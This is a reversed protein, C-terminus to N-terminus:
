TAETSTQPKLMGRFTTPPQGAHGNSLRAADGGAGLSTTIASQSSFIKDERMEEERLSLPAQAVNLRGIAGWLGGELGGLRKCIVAKETETSDWPWYPSLFEHAPADLTPDSLAIKKTKSSSTSHLIAKKAVGKKGKASFNCKDLCYDIYM